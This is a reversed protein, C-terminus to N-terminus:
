IGGGDRYAPASPNFEMQDILAYGAETLEWFDVGKYRVLRHRILVPLRNGRAGFEEFWRLRGGREAMLRLKAITKEGIGDYHHFTM